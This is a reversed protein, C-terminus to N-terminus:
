ADDTGTPMPRRRAVLDAALENIDLGESFAMARLRTLADALSVGLEVMLMGQVQYVELRMRLSQEVERSSPGEEAVADLLLDRASEAFTLCGAVEQPALTRAVSSYCTLVGLRAAGLQLPFAYVACVQEATAAGAFAVWRGGTDTLDSVLVPRGSAYAEGTPGEGLVFQLEQLRATEDDSSAGAADSGGPTMLTV